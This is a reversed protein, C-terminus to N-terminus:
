SSVEWRKRSKLHKHDDEKLSLHPSLEFTLIDDEKRVIMPTMLSGLMGKSSGLTAGIHGTQIRKALDNLFKALRKKGKAVEAAWKKKNRDDGSSGTGPKRFWSLVSGKDDFVLTGGCLM